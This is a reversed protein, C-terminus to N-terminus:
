MGAAWSAEDEGGLEAPRVQTDFVARSGPRLLALFADPDLRRLRRYLRLKRASAGVDAATLGRAQPLRPPMPTLHTLCPLALERSLCRLGVVDHM